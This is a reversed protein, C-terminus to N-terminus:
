DELKVGFLCLVWRPVAALDKAMAENADLVSELWAQTTNLELGIKECLDIEESLRAELEAIKAVLEAKTKTTTM